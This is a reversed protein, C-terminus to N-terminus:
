SPNRFKRFIEQVVPAPVYNLVRFNNRQYRFTTVLYAIEHNDVRFFASSQKHFKNIAINDQVLHQGSLISDKNINMHFGMARQKIREM